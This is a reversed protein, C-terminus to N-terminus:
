DDEDDDASQLMDLGFQLMGTALWPTMSDSMGISIQPGDPGITEAVVIYHTIITEPMAGRILGEISEDPTM